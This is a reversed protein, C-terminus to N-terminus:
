EYRLVRGDLRRAVRHGPLLGALISVGLALISTSVLTGWPVLFRVSWGFFFKNIVFVLLISLLFGLVLAGVVAAGGLVSSEYMVIKALSFRSAGIARMVGLERSRELMLTFVASLVTLGSILLAIAQLAYTVRFTDDFVDLVQKRLRANTRVVLTLDPLATEIERAVREPDAGDKLYLSVGEKRREDFLREFVADPVFVVGQDSSYDYFVNEVRLELSERLGPLRIRDGPGVGNRASFTESVFVGNGARGIREIEEATMPKQFTLREYRGLLEFRVGNVRAVRDGFLVRKSSVWDIDKAEPLSAALERVSDPLYSADSVGLSTSASIYLDARTVHTIWDEVSRRFSLIMVSIGIYMGLAVVMAAVVVGSRAITMRIHDFALLMEAGFFRAFLPRAARVFIWLAVPSLLVASVLLMTPSVFGMYMSRRLLETRASLAALVACLSGLYALLRLRRVFRREGGQHSATERPPLHSLEWASAFSGCLALLPGLYLAVLALPISFAVERVNVPLYLTSFSTSVLRVTFLSLVYGLALGLLSACLGLVVSELLLLGCLQRSTAGIARLASMAPRRQLASYRSSNYILLLAVFLSICSLFRLNLDFAESMKKGHRAADGEGELVATPSLVRELALRLSEETEGSRPFINLTQIKGWDHFLDQYAAIDVLLVRGGFINLLKHDIMEAVPRIPIRAGGVLLEIGSSGIEERLAPSILAADSHQLLPLVREWPLRERDERTAGPPAFFDVGIIQVTGLDRGASFARAFTASRPTAAAVEPLARVRPVIEESLAGGPSSIRYPSEQEFLRTSAAFSEWANGTASSIAFFVAIGLAMGFVTLASRGKEVRLQALSITRLLPLLSM